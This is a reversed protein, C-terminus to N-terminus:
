FFTVSRNLFQLSPLPVRKGFTEFRDLYIRFLKVKNEKLQALSKGSRNIETDYVGIFSVFFGQGYFCTM